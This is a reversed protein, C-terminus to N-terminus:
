ASPGGRTAALDDALALLDDALSLLVEEKSCHRVTAVQLARAKALVGALTGARIGALEDELPDFGAALADLAEFLVRRPHDLLSLPRRRLAPPEPSAFPLRAKTPELHLM